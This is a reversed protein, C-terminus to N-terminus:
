TAGLGAVFDDFLPQNDQPGPAGEPHYQVSRIARSRHRLGEVTGDNVNVQSVVFGSSPPLSERDVQFEHNQSTIKVVGTELDRVAHNGGHHGFPLRSTTGGAALGLMQHGLCIGLIPVDSAVLEKVSATVAPVAEPDGPGNSLVIGRPSLALVDAATATYPVVIVELGRRSLSRLINSKIGCDLVVVRGGSGHAYTFAEAVGAGAVLAQAGLAPIRNAAAVLDAESRGRENRTVIARMAGRARLRRTLARTDVDCIGPIGADALYESLAYRARHHSHFPAIERVILASIWPQRAEAQEVTVGYNGILPYTMCVMQGRYSPDTAIELYGTMCTNFVIEAHADEASGFGAGRFISGDELVLLAPTV